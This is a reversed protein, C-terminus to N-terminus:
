GSILKKIPAFSRRHHISVGYKDLGERHEKTGYGKNKQWGYNPFETSLSDMIRDRYVKAVISAAAISISISDGKIIPKNAIEIDLGQNGDILIMDPKSSLSSIARIMSLKTAQLINLNDIEEVKAIGIGYDYNEIIYNYLLERKKASLKKSDNIQNDIFSNNVIVAASVVPGSWPGRGAEDVGAINRYGQLLLDNELSLDAM